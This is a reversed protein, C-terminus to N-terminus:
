QEKVLEDDPSAMWDLVQGLNPAQYNRGKIWKGNAHKDIVGTDPNRKSLNSSQVERYGDRGPLGASLPMGAVTVMTDTMGDLLEIADARSLPVSFDSLAPLIKKLTNAMGDLEKDAHDLSAFLQARSWRSVSQRMVAARIARATEAMEEMTLAFYLVTTANVEPYQPLRQGSAHMLDRQYAWVDVLEKDHASVADLLMGLLGAGIGLAILMYQYTPLEFKGSLTILFLVSSATLIILSYDRLHKM